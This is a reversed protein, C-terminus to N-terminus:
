THMTLTKLYNRKEFVYYDAFKNIQLFLLEGVGSLESQTRTLM